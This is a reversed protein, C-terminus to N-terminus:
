RRAARARVAVIGAVGALMLLLSAPEPVPASTYEIVYGQPLTFGALGAQPQDGWTSGRNIGAYYTVGQAGGGFADPQGPGWPAYSGLAGGTVYNFSGVSSADSYIGLWPGVIDGNVSVGTFFSASDVLAFIFANEGANLPTALYGGAATAALNADGWTLGAPVLIADYYHGNAPNLVPTAHAAGTGLAGVALLGAGLLRKLLISATM